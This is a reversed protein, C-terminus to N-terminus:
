KPQYGTPGDLPDKRGSPSQPGFLDASCPRDGGFLGRRVNGPPLFSDAGLSGTLFALGDFSITMGQAQDSLTQEMNM